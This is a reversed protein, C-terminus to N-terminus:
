YHRIDEVFPEDTEVFIIDQHVCLSDCPKREFACGKCSNESISPLIKFPENDVLVIIGTPLKIDIM